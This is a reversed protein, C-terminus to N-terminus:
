CEQQLVKILCLLWSQFDLLDRQSPASDNTPPRIMEAGRGSEDESANKGRHLKVQTQSVRACVCVYVYVYWMHPAASGLLCILFARPSPRGSWLSSTM